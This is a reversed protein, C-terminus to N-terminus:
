KNKLREKKLYELGEMVEDERGIWANANDISYDFEIAWKGDRRFVSYQAQHTDFGSSFWVFIAMKGTSGKVISSINIGEHTNTYNRIKDTVSKKILIIKCPVEKSSFSSDINLEKYYFGLNSKEFEKMLFTKELLTSSMFKKYGNLCPKGVIIDNKDSLIDKIVLSIVENHDKDTISDFQLIKKSCSTFISIFVLFLINKM